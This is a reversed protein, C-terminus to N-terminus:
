VRSIHCELYAERGWWVDCCFHRVCVVCHHRGVDRTTLWPGEGRLRFVSVAGPIIVWDDWGWKVGRHLGRILLRSGTILILLVICISHVAILSPGRTEFHANPPRLPPIPAGLAPDLKDLGFRRLIGRVIYFDEETNPPEGILASHM